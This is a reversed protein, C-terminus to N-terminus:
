RRVRIDADSMQIARFAMRPYKGVFERIKTQAALFSHYTGVYTPAGTSTRTQITWTEM